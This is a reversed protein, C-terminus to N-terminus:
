REERIMSKFDLYLEEGNHTITISVPKRATNSFPSEYRQYDTHIPVGNLRFEKGYELEFNNGNSSYSLITGKFSISNSQLRKIFEPFSHDTDSTGIETIWYTDKGFQVLDYRSGTDNAFYTLPSNGIMAIYVSGKKAFLTNADLIIEDFENEPFYAHTRYLLEEEMFGKREPLIYLTMNINREQASHPLRGSGTWYGPSDGHPPTSNTSVAPHTTFIRTDTGIDAQWILQRDGYTGPHYNQVTAMGYSGTRYTYINARQMAIGNTQPKGLRSLLNFLGPIKLLTYNVSKLGAFIENSFLKQKDIYKISNALVDPNTYAQMGWQMMIQDINQGILNEKKLEQVDLGQSTKIITESTNGAISRLLQPISYSNSYILNLLMGPFDEKNNQVERDNGSFIDLISQIPSPSPKIPDDTVSGVPASFAGNITNTSIDFLILDMIMTSKIVIEEDQAFDSLNSLAALSESFMSPSLWESFGYYWRQQLWSLIRSRARNMHEKGTLQANTFISDPFLLGALYEASSFLIQHSESWFCMSDLGADDMWYKFGLLTKKILEYDEEHLSDSHDYMIRLLSPLRFDSGDYRNDLYSCIQAVTESSYDLNNEIQYLLLNEDLHITTVPQSPVASYSRNKIVDMVLSTILGLVLLFVIFFFIRRIGLRTREKKTTRQQKKALRM